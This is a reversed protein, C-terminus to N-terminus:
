YGSGRMVIEAQSLMFNDFGGEGVHLRPMLAVTCQVIFEQGAQLHEVISLNRLDLILFSLGTTRCTM